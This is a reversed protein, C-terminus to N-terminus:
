DVSLSAAAITMLDVTPPISIKASAAVPSVSLSFISIVAVPEDTM